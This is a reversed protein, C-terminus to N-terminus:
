ASQALVTIEADDTKEGQPLVLGCAADLIGHLALSRRPLESLHGKLVETVANMFRWGNRGSFEPHNPNRWQELVDPVRTPVIVRADLARIILDHAQLDTIETQHYAAFRREQTNKLDGLLGVARNVLQPLDREINATHKRALKVSGSFSLNDCVFVSAGLVLGAPFSQDHSNRIGVVMGFEGDSDGSRGVQLLGFYRDGERTLGHAESQVTLGQAELTGQVQDLLVAHPIPVWTKTRAPTAVLAVAGREVSGAGAHLILNSQRM